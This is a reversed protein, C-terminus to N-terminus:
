DRATAFKAIEKRGMRKLIIKNAEKRAWRKARSKRRGKSVRPGNGKPEMGPMSFNTPTGVQALITSWGSRGGVTRGVRRSPEEGEMGSGEALTDPKHSVTRDGMRALVQQGGPAEAVQQGHPAYRVPIPM